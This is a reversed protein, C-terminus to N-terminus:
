QAGFLKKVAGGIGEAAGGVGRALGELSVGLGQAVAAGMRLALRENLSFTPDDLNGELVFDMSIRGNRDKLAAITAHRPVGMFTSFPNGSTSLELDSLTAKGPAHLRNARVKSRLQLDLTGRKVGTESAKILYPQLAILDVGRLTTRIESDRTALDSWGAIELTGNRRVGKIVGNLQLTTRGALAPLRLDEVKAEVQELRTKHSRRRVSADFFELVGDHLEIKGIGVPVGASGASVRKDLLSPLLRLQGERTRHVSLYPKEVTIRALHVRASFLGTLDPSIHVREARLADTTPWGKSARIRIGHLAIGSWGVVVQAVESEPGLAQEVQDKLVISAYRLGVVVAIVLVGVIVAAIIVARRYHKKKM